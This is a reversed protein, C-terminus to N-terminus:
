TVADLDLNDRYHRRDLRDLEDDKTWRKVWAARSEDGVNTSLGVRREFHERHLFYPHGDKQMYAGSLHQVLAARRTFEDLNSETIGRLGVAMTLWVVCETVVYEHDDSQLQEWDAVNTVNWNLAMGTEKHTTM